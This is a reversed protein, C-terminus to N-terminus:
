AMSGLLIELVRDMSCRSGVNQLCEAMEREGYVLGACVDALLSKGNVHKELLVFALFHGYEILPM